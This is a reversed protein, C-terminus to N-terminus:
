HVTLNLLCCLVFLLFSFTRGEIENQQLGSSQHWGGSDAKNEQIAQILGKIKEMSAFDFKLSFESRSKTEEAIMDSTLVISHLSSLVDV